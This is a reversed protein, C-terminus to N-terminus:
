KALAARANESLQFSETKGHKNARIASALKKADEPHSLIIRVRKSTLPSDTNFFSINRRSNDEM